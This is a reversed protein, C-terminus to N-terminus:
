CSVKSLSENLESSSSATQRQELRPPLYDIQAAQESQVTNTLPSTGM